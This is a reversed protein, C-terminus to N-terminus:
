KRMEAVFVRGGESLDAESYLYLAPQAFRLLDLSSDSNQSWSWALWGVGLSRLDDLAAQTRYGVQPSGQWGIEGVVVALGRARIAAIEDRLRWPSGSGFDNWRGVDTAEATRHYAYLHVSFMVNRDPDAELVVQGFDRVSRPNQGCAGGADIMIPATIGASRLASVADSYAAAWAPGDFSGWENAINLVIRDGFSRVMAARDPQLWWAVVADLDARATDCTADHNEPVPIMGADLAAQITRRQEEVTAHGMGSGYVLRISNAGAKAIEPIAAENHEKWGWFLTHNIGRLIM